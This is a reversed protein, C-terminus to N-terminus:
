KKEILLYKNITVPSVISFYCVSNTYGSYGLKPDASVTGNNENPNWRSPDWIRFENVCGAMPRYVIWAHGSGDPKKGRVIYTPVGLEAFLVHLMIARERCMVKSQRFLHGLSTPKVSQAYCASREAATCIALPNQSVYKTIRYLEFFLRSRYDVQQTGSQVQQTELAFTTNMQQYYWNLDVDDFDIRLNECHGDVHVSESSYRIIRDTVKSINLKDNSRFLDVQLNMFNNAAM